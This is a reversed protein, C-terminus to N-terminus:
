DPNINDGNGIFLAAYTNDEIKNHPVAVGMIHWWVQRNSFDGYDSIFSDIFSYISSRIFLCVFYQNCNLYIKSVCQMSGCSIPPSTM